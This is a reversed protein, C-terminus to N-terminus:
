PATGVVLINGEILWCDPDDLFRALADPDRFRAWFEHDADPL